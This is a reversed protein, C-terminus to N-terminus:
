KRLKHCISQLCPINRAKVKTYDTTEDIEEEYDISESFNEISEKEHDMFKDTYQNQRIFKPIPAFDKSDLVDLTTIFPNNARSVNM